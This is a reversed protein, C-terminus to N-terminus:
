WPLWGPPMRQWDTPRRPDGPPVVLSGAFEAHEYVSGLSRAVDAQASVLFHRL